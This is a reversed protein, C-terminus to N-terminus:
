IDNYSLRSTWGYSVATGDNIVYICIANDNIDAPSGTNSNYNTKMGLKLNKHLAWDVRNIQNLHKIGSDYLIRYRMGKGVNNDNYISIMADINTTTSDFLDALPTLVALNNNRTERIILLRFSGNTTTAAFFRFSMGLLKVQSGIRQIDSTGLAIVNQTDQVPGAVGATYLRRNYVYKKEFSHKLKKIAIANKKVSPRTKTRIFIKGRKAFRTM